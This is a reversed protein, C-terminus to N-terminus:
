TVEFGPDAQQFRFRTVTGNRDLIVWRGDEFTLRIGQVPVNRDAGALGAQPQRESEGRELWSMDIEWLGPPVDPPPPLQVVDVQKSDVKPPLPETDVVGLDEGTLAKWCKAKQAPRALWTAYTRQYAVARRVYEAEIFPEAVVLDAEAAYSLVLIENAIGSSYIH